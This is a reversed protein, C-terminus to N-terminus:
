ARLPHPLTVSVSHITLASDRVLDGQFKAAPEETLTIPVAEFETPALLAEATSVVEPTIGTV